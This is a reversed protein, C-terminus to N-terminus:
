TRTARWAGLASRSKPGWDGDIAGDYYGMERLAQQMQRAAAEFAAFAEGVPALPTGASGMVPPPSATKAGSLARNAWMLRDTFGPLHNETTGAPREYSVGFAFVADNITKTKRLAEVVYRYDFNPNEGSLEAVLYGYNALDSIPSLNRKTCWADFSRRRPGTWQAWGFGGRSGTIAPKLEQLVRLGISEFGLNGVAGAAHLPELSFVAVLRRVLWGGREEFSAPLPPMDFPLDLM